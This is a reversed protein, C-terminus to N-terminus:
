AACREPESAASSELTTAFADGGMDGELIESIRRLAPDQMSQGPCLPQASESDFMLVEVRPTTARILGAIELPDLDAMRTDLLVFSCPLVEMRALADAGGEAEEADLATSFEERLRMVVRQRFKANSSAVLVAPQAQMQTATFPM